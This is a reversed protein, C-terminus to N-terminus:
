SIGCVFDLTEERKFLVVVVAVIIGEVWGDVGWVLVVVVVDIVCCRVLTM